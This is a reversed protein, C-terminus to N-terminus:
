EEEDVEVKVLHISSLNIPSLGTRRVTDETVCQFSVKKKTQETVMDSLLDLNKHNDREFYGKYVGDEEKFILLLKDSDESVAVRAKGLQISMPSSLRSIIGKWGAAIKKLDSAQAPSFRENLANEAQEGSLIRGRSGKKGQPGAQGPGDGGRFGGTQMLDAQDAPILVSDEIRDELVRLREELSETDSEMQPHCLKIFGVETLVRKQTAYRLQNSLESLVRIYRLLTQNEIRRSDERLGAITESSMELNDEGAHPDKLILLNRLYWIFDSLFQSLEQGESIGRDIIKLVEGTERNLIRKLLDRFIATDVTGLVSLVNDYTLTQGLYFSICQDLLSLADRMSGDAVRAIYALAEPTADIKEKEMLITLHRTITDIPIRKFDYKQCRSLITVPIKHKETTALIFIVYSPPEELTKLLANFAGASLMHVEDIIYVKYKGSVPSYQVQERIERVNDVGNNSAADIEIVDMSSAQNIARCSPCCNCPNGNDPNECNVAKAFLKAISTKGTGRTGCFLYAHGIRQYIIQNRLTRVIADQGRVEDFDRPRWKRYLAMYSM